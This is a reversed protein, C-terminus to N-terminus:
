LMVETTSIIFARIPIHDTMLRVKLWRDICKAHFNHMCQLIRLRDGDAYEDICINCQPVTGDSDGGGGLESPKFSKTPLKEIDSQTMGRSVQGISEILNMFSQFSLLLRYPIRPLAYPLRLTQTQQKTGPWGLTFDM